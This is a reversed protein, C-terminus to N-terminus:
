TPFSINEFFLIIKGAPAKRPRESGSPALRCSGGVADIFCGEAGTGFLFYKGKLRLTGFFQAAIPYL